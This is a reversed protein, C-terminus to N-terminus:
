AEFEKKLIKYFEELNYVNDIIEDPTFQNIVEEIDVYLTLLNDSMSVGHNKLSIDKFDSM